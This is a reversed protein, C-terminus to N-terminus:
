DQVSQVSVLHMVKNIMGRISPTDEVTRSRRVKCLGLGKLTAIQDKKRGAGSRVQTVKLWM